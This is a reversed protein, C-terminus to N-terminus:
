LKGLAKWLGQTDGVVWGDEIRRDRQHFIAAGVYVVGKGTPEVDLLKGRHTGCWAM